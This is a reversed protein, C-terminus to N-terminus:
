YRKELAFTGVISILEFQSGSGKQDWCPTKCNSRHDSIFFLGSSDIVYRVRRRPRRQVLRNRDTRRASPTGGYGPFSSSPRLHLVYTSGAIRYRSNPAPYDVVSSACTSSSRRSSSPVRTCFFCFMLYSQHQLTGPSASEGTGFLVLDFTFVPNRM